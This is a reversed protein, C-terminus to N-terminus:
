RTKNYDGTCATIVCLKAVAATAEAEAAAVTPSLNASGVARVEKGGKGSGKPSSICRKWKM